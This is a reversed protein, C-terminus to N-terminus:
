RAPREGVVVCYGTSPWPAEHVNAFGAAELERVLDAPMIGHDNGQVRKGPEAPMKSRPEFDSIAIRGGPKLSELLSANMAPSDGFHHYVDRM